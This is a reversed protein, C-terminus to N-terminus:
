GPVYMAFWIVLSFIRFYMLSGLNMPAIALSIPFCADVPEDEAADVAPSLDSESFRFIFIVNCVM